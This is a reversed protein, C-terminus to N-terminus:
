RLASAREAIEDTWVQFSELTCPGFTTTIAVDAADRGQAILTRGIRPANNRPDFTQWGGDLYVEMWAAFDMAGYPPPQGMDGLYGTCYRAPINMARCFAVALHTFDRCVGTRENFAEWATRTPRANQYNFTIHDHVFDCIAQVRPGGLPTQGFQAWAVNSLLDTECYRSGMLFVLTDEPLDQLAVQQASTALREPQGSDRIVGMGKLRIKGIPAVIRSCWNGFRDRYSTVQTLPDTTLLDPSVIDSARSYHINVMLIMPTEQVCDFVLEYGVQILM